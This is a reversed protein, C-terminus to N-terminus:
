AFAPRVAFPARAQIMDHLAFAFKRAVGPNATQGPIGPTRNADLLVPEGDHEVFDFKGYDFGLRQRIERLKAPAEVETMSLTNRGKIIAEHSVHRLCKERDGLFVWVRMAYADGEREPLFREVICNPDDWTEDSVDDISELVRYESFINASPYPLPRGRRKAVRNHAVEKVGAYNLNSKVIVPGHWTEGYELQAGSIRRKTADAAGFNLRVPFDRALELYEDPVVTADVHLVALDGHTRKAGRVIKYSHGLMEAERLVDHLLYRGALPPFGWQLRTFEDYEHTFVVIRGVDRERAGM